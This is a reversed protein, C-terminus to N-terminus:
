HQAVKDQCFPRGAPLCYRIASFRKRGSEKQRKLKENSRDPKRSPERNNRKGERASQRLRGKLQRRKRADALDLQNMRLMM